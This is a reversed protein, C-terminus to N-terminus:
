AVPRLEDLEAPSRLVSTLRTLAWANHDRSAALAGIAKRLRSPDNLLDLAQLLLQADSTQCAGADHPREVPAVFQYGRGPVNIIYRAGSEGDGLARRLAMLHVRLNVEEVLCSPWVQQTITRKDVVEGARELLCGLIDLARSGIRVAAGGRLLLARAPLYTFADFHFARQEIALDISNRSAIMLGMPSM